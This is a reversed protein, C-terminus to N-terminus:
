KNAKIIVVQSSGDIQFFQDYPEYFMFGYKLPNFKALDMEGSDHTLEQNVKRLVVVESLKRIQKGKLSAINSFSIRSLREQYINTMEENLPFADLGKFVEFHLQELSTKSITKFDQNKEQARLLSSLSLVITLIITLRM